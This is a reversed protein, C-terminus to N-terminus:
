GYLVEFRLADKISATQAGIMLRAKAADLATRVPLGLALSRRFWLGLLDAGGMKNVGGLNEGYGGVIARPQRAKLAELLGGGAYCNVLYLVCGSLKLQQLADENMAVDGSVSIWVNQAPVAHFNFYVLRASEIRDKCVALLSDANLPPCTFPKVGSAQATAQEYRQDCYAFVNM